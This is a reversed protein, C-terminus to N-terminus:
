RFSLNGWVESFEYPFSGRLPRRKPKPRYSASSSPPRCTVSRPTCASKTTSRKWSRASVPAPRMSAGMEVRQVAALKFEKTYQRRSLGM